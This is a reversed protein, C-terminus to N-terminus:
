SFRSNCATGRHSKSGCHGCIHEFTCKGQPKLCKNEQWFFCCPFKYRSKQNSVQRFLSSGSKQKSTVSKVTNARFHKASIAGKKQAESLNLGENRVARRFEDDFSLISEDTFDCRVSALFELYDLYKQLTDSYEGTLHKALCSAVRISGAFFEDGTIETPTVKERQAM